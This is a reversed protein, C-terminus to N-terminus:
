AAKKKAVGITAVASSDIVGVVRDHLPRLKM